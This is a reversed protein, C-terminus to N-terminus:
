NQHPKKLETSKTM